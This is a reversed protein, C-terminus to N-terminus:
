ASRPRQASLRPLPSGGRKGRVGKEAVPTKGLSRAPCIGRSLNRGTRAADSLALRREAGVGSRNADPITIPKGGSYSIAKLPIRVYVGVRLDEAYRFVIVISFNANGEALSTWHLSLRRNSAEICM